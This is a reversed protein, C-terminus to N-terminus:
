TIIHSTDDKVVGECGEGCVTVNAIVNKDDSMKFDAFILVLM